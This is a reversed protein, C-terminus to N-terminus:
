AEDEPGDSARSDKGLEAKCHRLRRQFKRVRADPRSERGYDKTTLLPMLYEQVAETKTEIRRRRLKKKRNRTREQQAKKQKLEEDLKKQWAVAKDEMHVACEVSDCNALRSGHHRCQKPVTPRLTLIRGRRDEGYKVEWWYRESHDQYVKPHVSGGRPPFYGYHKKDALHEECTDCRCSFWSIDEHDKSRPDLASADGRRPVWDHWEEGINCRECFKHKVQDWERVPVSLEAEHDENVWQEPAGGTLRLDEWLGNVLM